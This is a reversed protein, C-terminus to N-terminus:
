AADKAIDDGDGWPAGWGTLAAGPTATGDSGRSSRLWALGESAPHQRRGGIPREPGSRDLPSATKGLLFHCDQRRWPNERQLGPFVKPARNFVGSTFRFVGGTLM